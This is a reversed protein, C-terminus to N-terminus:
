SKTTKIPEDAAGQGASELFTYMDMAFITRLPDFNRFVEPFKCNRAAVIIALIKRFVSKSEECHPSPM